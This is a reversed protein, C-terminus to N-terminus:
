PLSLSRRVMPTYMIKQTRLFPYEASFREYGGTCVSLPLAYTHIGTHEGKLILVQNKSGSSALQNALQTAPATPIYPPISVCMCVQLSVTKWLLFLTVTMCWVTSVPLSTYVLHFETHRMMKKRRPWSQWNFIDKMILQVAGQIQWSLPLTYERSPSYKFEGFLLLYTDDVVAPSKDCQIYCIWTSQYM